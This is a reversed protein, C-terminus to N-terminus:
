RNHRIVATLLNVLKLTGHRKHADEVGQKPNMLSSSSASFSLESHQELLEELEEHLFDIKQWTLVSGLQTDTMTYEEIWTDVDWGRSSVRRAHIVPTALVSGVHHDVLSLSLVDCLDPLTVAVEQLIEAPLSGFGLSSAALLKNTM